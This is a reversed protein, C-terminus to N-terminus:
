IADIPASDDLQFGEEAMQEYALRIEDGNTHGMPNGNDDLIYVDQANPNPKYFTKRYIPSGDICCVIGSKGAVKYDRHPEKKNFPTLQEKFIIVGKLEQGERWGFKKLDKILGQILASVPKIQGFGRDDIVIRAQEVRIYGWKPNSRSPIVVNGDIATVRVASQEASLTSIM